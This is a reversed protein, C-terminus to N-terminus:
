SDHPIAHCQSRASLSSFCVNDLTVSLSFVFNCINQTPSLGDRPKDDFIFFTGINVGNETRIPTGAYFRYSAVSGNVYPLENSRIDKSLDNVIFCPTNATTDLMVTIECLSNSISSSTQGFWKSVNM